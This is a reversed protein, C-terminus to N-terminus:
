AYAMAQAAFVLSAVGTVSPDPNPTLSQPEQAMASLWFRGSPFLPAALLGTAVAACMDGLMFDVGFQDEGPEYIRVRIEVFAIQDTISPDEATAENATARLPTGYICVREPNTPEFHSVQVPRSATSVLDEAGAPPTESGDVYAALRALALRKIPWALLSVPTM